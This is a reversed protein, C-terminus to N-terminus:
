HAAQTDHLAAVRVVELPSVPFACPCICVAWVGGRVWFALWIVVRMKHQCLEERHGEEEEGWGGDQALLLLLLTQLRPLTVLTTRDWDQLCAPRIWIWAEDGDLRTVERLRLRKVSFHDYHHYRGGLFAM